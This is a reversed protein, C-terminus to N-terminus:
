GPASRYRQRLRPPRDFYGNSHPEIEGPMADATAQLGRLFDVTHRCTECSELHGEIEARQRETLMGDVYDDLHEEKITCNM